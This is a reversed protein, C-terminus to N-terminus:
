VLCTAGANQLVMTVNGVAQPKGNTVMGTEDGNTQDALRIRMDSVDRPLHNACGKYDALLLLGEQDFM